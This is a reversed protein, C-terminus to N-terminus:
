DVLNTKGVESSFGKSVLCLRFDYYDLRAMDPRDKNYEEYYKKELKLVEDWYKRKEKSDWISLGSKLAEILAVTTGM